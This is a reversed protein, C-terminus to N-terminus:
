RLLRAARGQQLEVENYYKSAQQYSRHGSQAMAESLPISQRAAETLFGSRLGHASYDNSSYGLEALRDKVVANVSQPSLAVSGVRGWRDIRRFLPGASINAAELWDQLHYVARGVIYVRHGQDANTTKTRGLSISICPALEPSPHGESHQTPPQWSAVAPVPDAEEIAEFRLTAVESRRRGGAAFAVSLLARDRLARLVTGDSRSEGADDGSVATLHELLHDMVDATIPRRSKRERPRAVARIALRTARRLQPDQFAGEAGRWQTLTSWTALRRRVTSPAHPGDARLFGDRRLTLGVGHPMGHSEDREKEVPDWLHHAVFLLLLDRPAPWPLPAGTAARCWAELYALDSLLAKLSNAGMGKEFLHRLTAVDRDTLVEALQDSRELSGVPDLDDLQRARLEANRDPSTM